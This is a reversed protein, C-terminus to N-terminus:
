ISIAFNSTAAHKSLKQCESFDSDLHSQLYISFNLNVITWRDLFKAKVAKKSTSVLEM